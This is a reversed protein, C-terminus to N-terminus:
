KGAVFLQIIKLFLALCGIQFLDDTAVAIYRKGGQNFLTRSSKLSYVALTVIGCGNQVGASGGPRGLAGHQGMLIDFGRNEINRIIFAAIGVVPGQTKKGQIMHETLYM